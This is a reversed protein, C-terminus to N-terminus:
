LDDDGYNLVFTDSFLLISFCVISPCLSDVEHM